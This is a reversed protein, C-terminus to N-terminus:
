RAHESDGNLVKRLLDGVKTTRAVLREIAVAQRCKKAALLNRGLRHDDRKVIAIQVVPNERM